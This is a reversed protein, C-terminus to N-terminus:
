VKKWGRNENKYQLISKVNLPRNARSAQAMSDYVRGNPGQVKITRRNSSMLQRAEDSHKRDFMPNNEGEVDLHSQTAASGEQINYGLTRANLRDIWARELDDLENQAAYQLIERRFNEVGYKEIAQKILLGAGLYKERPDNVCKGVYFKGNVLNTTKYIFGVKTFSAGLSGGPHYKFFDLATFKLRHSLEVAITDLLCLLTTTTTTPALGHEDGEQVDGCWLEFQAESRLKKSNCHILIQTATPRINSIYHIAELMEKTKGSRSIHIMTDRPGVLGYDGHSCHSVNLSMSPIGLSAMSATAKEAIASNKGVGAVIIRSSYDTHTALHQIINNYEPTRVVQHLGQLGAVQKSICNDLLDYHVNM